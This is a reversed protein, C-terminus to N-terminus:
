VNVRVKVKVKILYYWASIHSYRFLIFQQQQQQQQVTIVKYCQPRLPIVEQSYKGLSQFSLFEEMFGVGSSVYNGDYAVSM